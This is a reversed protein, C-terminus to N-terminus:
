DINNVEEFVKVLAKVNTVNDAEEIAEETAVVPNTVKVQTFANLLSTIMDPNKKNFKDLQEALWKDVYNKDSPQTPIAHLDTRITSSSQLFYMCNSDLEEAHKKMLRFYRKKANEQGKRGESNMETLDLRTTTLFGSCASLGTLFEKIAPILMKETLNVAEKTIEGNKGSATAMLTNKKGEDGQQNAKVSAIWTGIGFTPVLLILALNDFRQKNRFNEKARKMLKETEDEYIQKLKDLETIGVVADDENKKLETILGEHLQMLLKCAEEANTIEEVIDELNEQWEEFEFAKIEYAYAQIKKVVDESQPLLTDTYILANIRTKDRLELFKSACDHQGSVASQNHLVRMTSSFEIIHKPMKHLAAQLSNLYEDKIIPSPGPVDVRTM